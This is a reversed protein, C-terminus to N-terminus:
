GSGHIRLTGVTTPQQLCPDSARCTNTKCGGCRRFSFNPQARCSGNGAAAGGSQRSTSTGEGEAARHTRYTATGAHAATGAVTESMAQRGVPLLTRRGADERHRATCPRTPGRGRATCSPECAHAESSKYPREIAVWGLTRKQRASLTSPMARTASVSARSRM